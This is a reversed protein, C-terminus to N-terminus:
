QSPLLDHKRKTGLHHLLMKKCSRAERPALNIEPAINVATSGPQAEKPPNQTPRPRHPRSAPTSHHTQKNTKKAELLVSCSLASNAPRQKLVLFTTRPFHPALDEAPSDPCRPPRSPFARLRPPPFRSPFIGRSRPAAATTVEGRQRARPTPATQEAEAFTTELRSRMSFCAKGARVLLAWAM